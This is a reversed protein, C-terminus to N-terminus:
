VIQAPKLAPVEVGLLEDLLHLAVSNRGAKLHERVTIAMKAEVVVDGDNNTLKEEPETMGRRFQVLVPNYEYKGDSQRDFDIGNKVCFAELEMFEGYKAQDDCIRIRGSEDLNAMLDQEGEPNFGYEGFDTYVNANCIADCLANVLAKPIEGGILMKGPMYDSM